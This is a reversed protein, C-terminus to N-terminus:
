RSKSKRARLLFKRAKLSLCHSGRATSGTIYSSTGSQYHPCLTLSYYFSLSGLFILVCYIVHQFIVLVIHPFDGNKRKKDNANRHDQHSPAGAREPLIATDVFGAVVGTWCGADDIVAVGAVVVDAATTFMEEVFRMGVVVVAAAVESGM